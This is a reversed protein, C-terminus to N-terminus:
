FLEWRQTTLEDSPPLGLNLMTAIVNTYFKSLADIKIFSNKRQPSYNIKEFDLPNEYLL